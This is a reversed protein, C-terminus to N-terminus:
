STQLFYKFSLAEICSIVEEGTQMQKFARESSRLVTGSKAECKESKMNQEEWGM